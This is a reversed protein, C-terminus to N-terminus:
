FCVEHQSRIVKYHNPYSFSSSLLLECLKGYEKPHHAKELLESNYFYYPELEYLPPLRIYKTDPRHIVALYFAYIFLQHNLRNRCFLAAKYFTEFDKAYYFLRFVYTAEKINRPYFISFVSDHPLFGHQLRHLFETV